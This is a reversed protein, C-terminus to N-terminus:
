FDKRQAYWCGLGVVIAVFALNSWIPGWIDLHMQMAGLDDRRDTMPISEKGTLLYQVMNGLEGPKPFVAHLPAIGYLYLIEIMRSTPAYRRETRWPDLEYESVRTFRDAVLLRDGSFAAASLSGQRAFGADCPEGLQTDYLWLRRNHFVIAVYRGDRSAEAFRPANKGEPQYLHWQSLDSGVYTEVRGDGWAVVLRGNALALTASVESEREQTLRLRYGGDARREFVSIQKRDCVAVDGSTPDMAASFPTRFSTEPGIPVFEAGESSVPLDFGFAKISKTEQTPDGKLRFLGRQGIALLDGQPTMFLASTGSPAAISAVRKFGDKRLGVIVNQGGSIGFQPFVYPVAYLREHETDYVPGIMPPRPVFRPFQAARDQASMVEDWKAGSENWQEIEGAENAAILSEGVPVLRVLRTYNLGFTETLSKTVDVVLCLCYFLVSMVVAVIANKWIAGALSSVAYYIAFLFCLLPVCLLMRANWVGLRTGSILWLGGIMYAANILTFACGGLYKTVYVLSRSVPKSLLLDVAGAEFTHPMISATVLIAVFIGVVGVFFGMVASTTSDIIEKRKGPFNPFPRYGFYGFSVDRSRSHAIERPYAAELLLRNLRALEDPTLKEVGRDVLRQIEPGLTTGAWYSEDYLDKKALLGDLEGSLDVKAGDQWPTRGVSNDSETLRRKSDDSLMTWIRKGPTPASANGQERIKAILEKPKLVDGNQFRSAPVEDLSVPAIVLLVLTTVVLLIWLVRSAFAERFSDKLIALYPRM